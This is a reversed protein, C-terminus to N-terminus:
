ATASTGTAQREAELIRLFALAPPSLVTGEAYAVHIQLTLTEDLIPILALRGSRADEEVASRVLFAIGEGKQVMEKIFDSNSTQLLVIPSLGREQFRGHILRHLSSGEERMIIVQRDLEEFRIGDRRALPHGPAAFLCVPEDRFPLLTLGKAEAGAAVIGLEDRQEVLARCVELSSGEDLVLKVEPYVERYRSILEPMVYRAYTKTTAVRLMARKIGRADDLAREMEEELAFIREAYQLLLAGAESVVIQRKGRRFLKLDLAEELARVQATVAPQTICLKDAARTFNQRKAAEYFVRLHHLNM